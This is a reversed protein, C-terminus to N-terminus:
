DKKARTADLSETYKAKLHPDDGRRYCLPAINESTVVREEGESPMWQARIKKRKRKEQM